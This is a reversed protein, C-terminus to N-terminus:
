SAEAFNIGIDLGPTSGSSSTKISGVVDKPANIGIAVEARSTQLLSASGKIDLQEDGNFFGTAWGFVANKLQKAKEILFDWNKVIAIVTAIIAVGAGVVILATGSFIAAFFAAGKGIVILIGGVVTLVPSLLAFAATIGGIVSKATDGLNIFGKAIGKVIDILFNFAPAVVRGLEAAALSLVGKSELTNRSLTKMQMNFASTLGTGEKMDQGIRSVTDAMASLREDSLSTVAAMARIEPIAKALLDPFDKNLKNLRKLAEALGLTRMQTKNIPVGFHALIKAADGTSTTMSLIASRLATTGEETSLGGQTVQAMAALLTKFGIGADAAITSLKGVNGALLEVTTSGAKQATFFANAIERANTTEKGYVNMINGIATTAVDLSTVGAIALIQAQEFAKFSQKNAGLQSVQNFLAKTTEETSFGLKKSAITAENIVSSWKKVAADDNLLTLVNTIGSEIDAFSKVSVALGATAALSFARTATGAAKLKKGAESASKSISNMQRKLSAGSKKIKAAPGSFLDRLSFSYSVKQAM